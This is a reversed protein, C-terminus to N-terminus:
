LILSACTLLLPFLNNTSTSPPPPSWKPILPPSACQQCQKNHVLSLYCYSLHHFSPLRYWCALLSLCDWSSVGEFELNNPNKKQKISAVSCWFYHQQSFSLHQLSGLTFQIFHDADNPGSLSLYQFLMLVIFLPMFDWMLTGYTSWWRVLWQLPIYTSSDAETGGGGGGTCVNGEGRGWGEPTSRHQWIVM